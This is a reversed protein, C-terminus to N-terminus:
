SAKRAEIAGELRSKLFNRRGRLRGLSEQLSKFEPAHFNITERHFLKHFKRLHMWFENLKVAMMKLKESSAETNELSFAIM